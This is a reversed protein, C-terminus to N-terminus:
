HCLYSNHWGKNEDNDTTKIINNHTLTETYQFQYSNEVWKIEWLHQNPSFRNTTIDTNIIGRPGLVKNLTSNTKKKLKNNIILGNEFGLVSFISPTKNYKEKYSAIFNINDDTMLNSHWSSIYKTTDFLQPYKSLIKNNISFPLTYLPTSSNVKNKHLFDAHEEAYVGNYFAFLVDPKTVDVFQTMLEAENERPHLPTVFHGSFEAENKEYLADQIAEIFGYGSEYFCTSTGVHKIGKDIFYKGLSYTANYLDLSNCFIHQRSDLNLPKTAGFDTYVLSEEMNDFFDLVKSLDRHGLIGTTVVVEEQNILKQSANVINEAENGLGIGEICLKYHDSLSLKLGNMFEKAMTPYQKSQPLLVGIKQLEM